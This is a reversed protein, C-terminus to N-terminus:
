AGTERRSKQSRYTSEIIDGALCADRQTMGSEILGTVYDYQNRRCYKTINRHKWAFAIGAEVAADIMRKVSARKM